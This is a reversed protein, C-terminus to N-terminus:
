AIGWAMRRENLSPWGALRDRACRIPRDAGLQQRVPPFVPFRARVARLRDRQIKSNHEAAPLPERYPHHYFVLATTCATQSVFTNYPGCYM